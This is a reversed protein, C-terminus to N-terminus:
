PSPTEEMAPELTPTEPTSTEPTVTEASPTELTPTEASPTEPTPTVPTPEDTPVETPVETPLATPFSTPTATPSPTPIDTPISTLFATAKLSPIVTARTPLFPVYLKDGARILISSGLCNAFQLQAITVGLDRSLRYLNDGPRITYSVWGTPPGCQQVAPPTPSLVVEPVYLQTGPILNTLIMCNAQMLAFESSQYKQALSELTDGSQVIITMWGDLLPCQATPSATFTPMKSPVATVSLTLEITQTVGATAPVLLGFSVGLTPTSSQVPTALLAVERQVETLALSFSGLVLSASILAVLIGMSVQGLDKM